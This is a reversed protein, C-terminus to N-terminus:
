APAVLVNSAAAFFPQRPREPLTLELLRSGDGTKGLLRTVEAMGESCLVHEGVGPLRITARVWAPRDESDAVRLTERRIRRVSNSQIGM